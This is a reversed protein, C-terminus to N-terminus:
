PKHIFPLLEHFEGFVLFRWHLMCGPGGVPGPTGPRGGVGVRNEVVFDRRGGARGSCFFFISAWGGM